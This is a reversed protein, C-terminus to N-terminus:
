KGGVYLNRNGIPIAPNGGVITNPRVEASVVSGSSIIAGTGIKVGDLIIANAGIWVDDSINIGIGREGQLNMAIGPTTIHTSALVQVGSAIMVNGGITIVSHRIAQILCNNGIYCNNGIHIKGGRPSLVLSGESRFGSAIALEGVLQPDDFIVKLPGLIRIKKGFLITGNKGRIIPFSQILFLSKSKIYKFYIIKAFFYNTISKCILLYDVFNHMKKNM